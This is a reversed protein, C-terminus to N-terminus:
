RSINKQRYGLKACSIKSSFTVQKSAGTGVIPMFSNSLIPPTSSGQYSNCICRKPFPLFGLGLRGPIHAKSFVM